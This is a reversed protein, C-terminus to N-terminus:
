GLQVTNFGLLHAEQLLDQVTMPKEPVFGPFGISYRYAYSGLGITIM